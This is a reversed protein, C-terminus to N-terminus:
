GATFADKAAVADADARDSSKVYYKGGTSHTRRMSGTMIWNRDETWVSSMLDM